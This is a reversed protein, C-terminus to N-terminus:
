RKRSENAISRATELYIEGLKPDYSNVFAAWGLLQNRQERFQDPNTQAQHFRARLQRRLPRTPHARVNVVLGTTMLRQGPGASWIKRSNVRFGGASVLQRIDRIFTKPFPDNASFTLDDAYRSYTLECAKALELIQGDVPHFALNALYPSTPAGQPLAGDFLCLSSLLHVVKEPFGFASYVAKVKGYGISPFFDELDIRALFKHGTHFAANKVIGGGPVFGTVYAPLHARSLIQTLMWKQVVKLFVRPTAIQRSGGHKKPIEFVRYYKRPVKVMAYLLKHSVGLLLSLVESRVLPPLDKSVLFQALEREDATLGLESSLAEVGQPIPYLPTTLKRTDGSGTTFNTM